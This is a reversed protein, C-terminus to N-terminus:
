VEDLGGRAPDGLELLREAVHAALQGGQGVAVPLADRVPQAPLAGLRDGAGQRDAAAHGFQERVGRALHERGLRAGAPRLLRRPLRQFEGLRRAGAPQARLRM